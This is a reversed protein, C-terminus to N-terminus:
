QVGPASVRQVTFVDRIRGLREQTAHLHQRDKVVITFTLIATRNKEVRAQLSSISINAESLLQVVDRLLDPRDLAILEIRVPYTAKDQEDWYVDILREPENQLSKANPCTVTHISVGRGRTIYGIIKDGPVPNCCRSFRILAEPLGKVRVGTETHVPREPEIAPIEILDTATKGQEERYDAVLKQMLPILSTGGYGLSAYLDDLELLNQKRGFKLLREETLLLHPEIGLRGVEKELMEKGKSINQERQEKKFWARIKSKAGSTRVM